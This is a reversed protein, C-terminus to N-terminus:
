WTGSPLPFATRARPAHGPARRAVELCPEAPRRQVVAPADVAGEAGGAPAAVGKLRALIATAIFEGVVPVGFASVHGLDFFVDEPHDNLVTSADIFGASGQMEAGALAYFSRAFEILSPRLEAIAQEEIPGLPTKTAILPQLVFFCRAEIAACIGDAIETNRVYIEIARRLNAEDPQPDPDRFLARELRRHVHARWFASHDALGLSAGYLFLTGSKQEVLAALKASLDNQINGAGFYFGHNADNYGDYFVVVDPLRDAPARAALTMFKILELLSQFTPVGFNEVRVRIGAAAMTEAIANAISREDTTQHEQLTSGGFIWVILEARDAQASAPTQRSSYFDSVNVTATACPPASFLFYEYYKAGAEGCSRLDQRLQRLQEFERSMERYISRGGAPGGLVRAGVELIVVGLVLVGVVYWVRRSGKSM